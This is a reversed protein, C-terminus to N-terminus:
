NSCSQMYNTGIGRAQFSAIAVINICCSCSVKFQQLHTGTQQLQMERAVQEDADIQQQKTNATSVCADEVPSADEDECLDIAVPAANQTPASPQAHQAQQQRFEKQLQAGSAEAALLSQASDHGDIDITEQQGVAASAKLDSFALAVDAETNCVINHHHLLYARNSGAPPQSAPARADPAREVGHCLSAVKLPELDSDIDLLQPTQRGSNIVAPRGNSTAAAVPDAPTSSVPVATPTLPAPLGHQHMASANAPWQASSPKDPSSVGHLPSLKARKVVPSGTNPRDSVTMLPVNRLVPDMDVVAVSRAALPMDRHQYSKAARRGARVGQSASSVPMSDSISNAAQHAASQQNAPSDEQVPKQQKTPLSVSNTHTDADVSRNAPSQVPLNPDLKPPAPHQAQVTDPHPSDCHVPYGFQAPPESFTASKLVSLPAPFPLPGHSPSAAPTSASHPPPSQHLGAAPNPAPRSDNSEVSGDTDEHSYGPVASTPFNNHM